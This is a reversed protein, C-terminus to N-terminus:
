KKNRWNSDYLFHKSLGHWGIPNITIIFGFGLVFGTTSFIFVTGLLNHIEMVSATLGLGVITFMIVQAKTTFRVRKWDSNM